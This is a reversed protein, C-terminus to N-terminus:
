RNSGNLISIGRFRTDDPSNGEQTAICCWLYRATAGPDLEFRGFPSTDGSSIAHIARELNALFKPLNFCTEGAHQEIHHDLISYAVDIMGDHMELSRNFTPTM